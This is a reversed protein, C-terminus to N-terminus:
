GVRFMYYARKLMASLLIDKVEEEHYEKAPKGDRM